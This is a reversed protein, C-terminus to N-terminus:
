EDIDGTLRLAITIQHISFHGGEGRRVANLIAKAEHYSM